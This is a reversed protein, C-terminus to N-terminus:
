PTFIKVKLPKNYKEAYEIMSKTGKNKGDWFCIVFDSIEAMQKNRKPGVSNGYKIWNASYREFKYGHELAYREGLKDAGRCGGSVFILTYKNKIRKICFEIFEKAETYNNYDRSGAVVIRKILDIM